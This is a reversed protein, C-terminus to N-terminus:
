QTIPAQRPSGPQNSRRKEWGKRERKNQTKEQNSKLKQELREERRERRTVERAAKEQIREAKVAEKRKAVAQKAAPAPKMKEEIKERQREFLGREARKAQLRKHADQFRTRIENSKRKELARAFVGKRAAKFEWIKFGAAKLPHEEGSHIVSMKEAGVPEFQKVLEPGRLTGMKEFDSRPGMLVEGELTHLETESTGSDSADIVLETGRVGLSASPTRIRVKVSESKGDGVVAARLTGQALEFAWSVFSERENDAGQYYFRSSEGVRLGTGDCLRLDAWSGAATHVLDGPQISAGSTASIKDGAPSILVVTGALDEVLAIQCEEREDALALLPIFLILPLFFRM